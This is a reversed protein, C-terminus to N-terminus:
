RMIRFGSSLIENLDFSSPCEFADHNGTINLWKYEYRRRGDDFMTYNNKRDGSLCTTRSLFGGVEKIGRPNELSISAFVESSILQLEDNILVWDSLFIDCEKEKAEVSLESYKINKRYLYSEIYEREPNMNKLKDNIVIGDCFPRYFLHKNSIVVCPTSNLIDNVITYFSDKVSLEQKIGFLEKLLWDTCYCASKENIGEMLNISIDEQNYEVKNSSLDVVEIGNLTEISRKNANVRVVGKNLLYQIFPIVIDYSLEIKIPSTSVSKFESLGMEYTLEGWKIDHLGLKKVFIDSVRNRRIKKTEALLYDMSVEYYDLLHNFYKKNLLFSDFYLASEQWNRNKIHCFLDYIDQQTGKLIELQEVIKNIVNVEKEHSDGDRGMMVYADFLFLQAIPKRRFARFFAQITDKDPANAFELCSDLISEDMDFSKILIRLYEKEEAHIDNDANMVLSLGQLYLIREELPLAKGAHDAFANAETTAESIADLIDM